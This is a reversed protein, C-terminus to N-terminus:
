IESNVLRLANTINNDPRTIFNTYMASEFDTAPEPTQTRTGARGNVDPYNLPYFM